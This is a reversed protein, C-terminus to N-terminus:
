NIIIGSESDDINIGKEKFFLRIEDAREWNKNKRAINREEILKKDNQSLKITSSRIVGLVDDIKNLIGIILSAEESSIEKNNFKINIKKIWNFIVGLGKSINLNDNMAIKFDNIVSSSMIKDNDLEIDDKSLDSLKKYFDKLRKLSNKSFKLNTENLNIKHSYSSSILFYRITDTDFGNKIIDDLTYFNNLSKSMKSGNVLLHECHIWLKAFQKDTACVSQAIENEHHPFLLDIGGCHIDFESGLYKLSMASCEIHWGPRGEGWPSDWFVDGDNEKRSKWLAFDNVFNKDYEDKKVRDTKSLQSFDIKSLIGYNKYSDIKFFVSGDDTKYAHNKKILKKILDIMESIHDTAFPIKQPLEIKLKQADTKFNKFYKKTIIELSKSSGLCKQIIKDDIDTVNMVHEVDYNLFNLYKKLMDFFVFARFNGIHPNDYVTPGCSYMKVKNNLPKLEEKNKSLSNYLKLTM